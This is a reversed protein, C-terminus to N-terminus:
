NYPNYDDDHMLLSLSPIVSSSSVEVAGEKHVNGGCKDTLYHIIGKFLGNKSDDYKIEFPEEPVGEVPTSVFPIANSNSRNRQNHLNRRPSLFSLISLLGNSSSSDSHNVSSHIHAPSDSYSSSSSSSCLIRRLFHQNTKKQEHKPGQSITGIISGYFELSSISIVDTDLTSKGTQKLRLYRYFVDQKQKKYM